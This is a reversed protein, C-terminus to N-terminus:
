RGPAPRPVVSRLTVLQLSAVDPITVMGDRMMVTGEDIDRLTAGNRHVRFEAPGTGALEPVRLTVDFSQAAHGTNDRDFQSMGPSEFQDSTYNALGIAWSGDPNIAAAGTLRPKRGFTWTMDGELESHSDRFTAGGDFTLSLRRFYYYKLLPLYWDGARLPQYQILRQVNDFGEPWERVEEAGLFWVWHTVRHNMDSLFRSAMSAAQRADGPPESTPLATGGGSETIWFDKLNPGAPGGVFRAEEDRAGMNYTHTAPGALAAWAGADAKLAALFQDAKADNNAHEPAVIGVQQLGRRDL